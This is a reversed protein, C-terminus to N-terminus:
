RKNYLVSEHTGQYAREIEEMYYIPHTVKDLAIADEDERQFSRRNVQNMPSLKKELIGHNRATKVLDVALANFERLGDIPIRDRPTDFAHVSWDRLHELIDFYLEKSQEPNLFIIDIGKAYLIPIEMGQYMYDRKSMAIANDVDKDGSVVIGFHELDHDSITFWTPVSLSYWYHFLRYAATHDKKNPRSKSM